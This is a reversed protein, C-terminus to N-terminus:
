SAESVCRSKYKSRPRAKVFIHLVGPQPGDGFITSLSDMASLSPTSFDIEDIKATGDDAFPVKWLNLSSFDVDRFMQQREEKIMKRLDSVTQMKPIEVKFIGEVDDGFALCNIHFKENM